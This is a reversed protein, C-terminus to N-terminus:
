GPNSPPDSKQFPLAMGGEDRIRSENEQVFSLADHIRRCVEEYEHLVVLLMPGRAVLMTALLRPSDSPLRRRAVYGRLLKEMAFWFHERVERRALWWLGYALDVTPEAHHALNFDILGSIRAPDGDILVRGVHLDGHVVLAGRQGSVGLSELTRDRLVIVQKAPQAGLVNVLRRYDLLPLLESVQLM